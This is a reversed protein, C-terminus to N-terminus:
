TRDEVGNLFTTWAMQTAQKITAEDAKVMTWAAYVLADYTEAIWVTPLASRLSGEARAADIAERLDRMGDEYMEAIEPPPNSQSLFLQRNALPITAAMALRLGDLHTSASAVAADIAADLEANAAQTLATMLDDRTAFHRHLTARGIGAHTAIDAMSASANRALLDFGAMMIETRRNQRM